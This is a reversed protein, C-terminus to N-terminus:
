ADGDMMGNVVNHMQRIVMRRAQRFTQAEDLALAIPKVASSPLCKMTVRKVINEAIPREGCKDHKDRLEEVRRLLMRVDKKSVPQLSILGTLIIDQKTQDMPLYEGYLRRWVDLGGNLGYTIFKKAEGAIWNKFASHVARNFQWIKPVRKSISKLLEETIPNDGQKEAAILLKNLTEGDKGKIAIYGRMNNNFFIYIIKCGLSWAFKAIEINRSNVLQFETKDDRDEGAGVSTNQSGSPNNGGLGNPGGNDRDNPERIVSFASHGMGGADVDGGDSEASMKVPTSYTSGGQGFRQQPGTPNHEAFFKEFDKHDTEEKEVNDEAGTAVQQRKANIKDLARRRQAAGFEKM